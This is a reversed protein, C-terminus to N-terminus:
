SNSDNFYCKDRAGMIISNLIDDNLNSDPVLEKLEDRSLDALDQITKIGSNELKKALDITVGKIELLNSEIEEINPSYDQDDTKHLQKYDIAREKLQIAVDPSIGSISELAEILM